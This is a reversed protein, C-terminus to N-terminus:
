LIQPFPIGLLKEISSRVTTLFSFSNMKEINEARFIEKINERSSFSQFSFSFSVTNGSISEWFSKINPTSCSELSSSFNDNSKNEAMSFDVSPNDQNATYNLVLRGTGAEIYLWVWGSGFLNLSAENFYEQFKEYSEFSKVIAALLAGTPKNDEAKAAPKRLLSFFLNHNLYGGGQHGLLIQYKRPLEGLRSLIQEIPLQAIEKWKKADKGNEAILNVLAANTKNIYSHFHQDHHLHMLRESLVPELENYAYPLAPLTLQTQGYVCGVVVVFAAFLSFM